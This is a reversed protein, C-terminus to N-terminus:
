IEFNCYFNGILDFNNSINRYSIEDLILDVYQKFHHGYFAWAGCAKAMLTAGIFKKGRIIESSLIRVNSTDPYQLKAWAELICVLHEPVIKKIRSMVKFSIKNIEERNRFGILSMGTIVDSLAYGQDYELFRRLDLLEKIMM